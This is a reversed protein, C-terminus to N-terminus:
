SAIEIKRTRAEQRKPLTVELVGHSVRAKVGETDIASSLTFDRRYKGIGYEQGIMQYGEPGGIHARGEVTLVNNEVTVDVSKQDVGPMDALLLIRDKNESIDVHPVYISETEPTKAKQVAQKERKVVKTDTM